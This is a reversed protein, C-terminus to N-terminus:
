KLPPKIVFLRRNYGYMLMITGTAAAGLYSIMAVKPFELWYELLLGGFLLAVSIAALIRVRPWNRGRLPQRRTEAAWAGLRDGDAM